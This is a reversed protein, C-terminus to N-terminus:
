ETSAPPASLWRPTAKKVNKTRWIATNSLKSFLRPPRPRAQTNKESALSWNAVNSTYFPAFITLNLKKSSETCITETEEHFVLTASRGSTANMTENFFQETQVTAPRPLQPIPAAVSIALLCFSFLIAAALPVPCRNNNTGNPPSVNKFKMVTSTKRTALALRCDSSEM